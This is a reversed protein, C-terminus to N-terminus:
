ASMLVILGATSSSRISRRIRRDVATTRRVKALHGCVGRPLRMVVMVMVMVMVLLLLLLLTSTGSSQMECRDDSATKTQLAQTRRPILQCALLRSIEGGARGGAV